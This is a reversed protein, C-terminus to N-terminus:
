DTKMLSIEIRRNKARGEITANDGVPRNEGYGIGALHRASLGQEQMFQLVSYARAMSLEWNSSYRGKKIPVNDTHGEILVDNPLKKLEAAIPALVQKAPEKLDAKGSAFLVGETLVLKVKRENSQIHVLNALDDTQMTEKLNREVQLENERAKARELGRSDARGGFAKQINGLSEEYKRSKTKDTKAISFSFLVLFFIMLYSMLDGYTVAWLAGKNLQNELEDRRQKYIAM